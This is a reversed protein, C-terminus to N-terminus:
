GRRATGYGREGERGALMGEEEGVTEERGDVGVGRDLGEEGLVWRAVGIWATAAAGLVCSVVALIWGTGLRWGVFFREDYDYLYAILMTAAMQALVVATGLAVLIKWGHKRKSTAPGNNGFLIVLFALL